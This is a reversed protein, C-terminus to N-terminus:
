LKDKETKEKKELQISDKSRKQMEQKKQREVLRQIDEPEPKKPEELGKTFLYSKYAKFWAYTNKKYRTLVQLFDEVLKAIGANNGNQLAM